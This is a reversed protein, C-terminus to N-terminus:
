PVLQIQYLQIVELPDFSVRKSVHNILWYNSLNYEFSNNIEKNTDALNSVILCTQNTQDISKLRAKYTEPSFDYDVVIDSPQDSYKKGYLQHFKFLDNIIIKDIQSPISLLMQFQFKISSVMSQDITNENIILTLKDDINKKIKATIEDRNTISNIVGKRDISYKITIGANLSNMLVTFPNNQSNAETFEIKGYQWEMDIFDDHISVVKIKVQKKTTNMIQQTGNGSSRVSYTISYNKIQNEVFSPILSVQINQAKFNNTFFLLFITSSIITKM